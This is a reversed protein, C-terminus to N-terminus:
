NDLSPFDKKCWLTFSTSNQQQKAEGGLARCQRAFELAAPPPTPTGDCAALWLTLSFVGLWSAPRLKPAKVGPLSPRSEPGNNPTPDLTLRPDRLRPPTHAHPTPHANASFQRLRTPDFWWKRGSLALTRIRSKLRLSCSPFAFPLHPAGLCIM